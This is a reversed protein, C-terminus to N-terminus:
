GETAWMFWSVTLADTSYLTSPNFSTGALMTGGSSANFIGTTNVTVGDCTCQWTYSFTWNGTGQDSYTAEARALGCDTIENDLSTSSASPATGNGVAIYKVAGLTGGQALYAEILEKGADTLVNPKCTILEGNKYVCVKANYVIPAGIAAKTSESGVTNGLMWGVAGALVVLVLPVLYIAKRMM